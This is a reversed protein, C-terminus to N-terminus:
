SRERFRETFAGLLCTYDQCETISVHMGKDDRYYVWTTGDEKDIIGLVKFQKGKSDCWTTGPKVDTLM